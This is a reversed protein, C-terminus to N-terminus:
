KSKEPDPKKLAKEPFRGHEHKSGAFWSTEYDDIIENPARVVTMKPGGSQLQVVEGVAFAMNGLGYIHRFSTPVHALPFM